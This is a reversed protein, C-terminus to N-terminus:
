NDIIEIISLVFKWISGSFSIQLIDTQDITFCLNLSIYDNTKAQNMELLFDTLM